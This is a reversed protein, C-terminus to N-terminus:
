LRGYSGMYEARLLQKNKEWVQGRMELLNEEARKDYIETMIREGPLLENVNIQLLDRLEPMIGSDPMSNGTERKSVARGSIGPKEAFGTQLICYNEAKIQDM